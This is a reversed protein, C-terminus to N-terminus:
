EGPPIEAAFFHVDDGSEKVKVAPAQLM